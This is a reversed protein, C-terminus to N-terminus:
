VAMANSVNQLNFVIPQVNHACANMAQGNDEEDCGFGADDDAAPPHIAEDNPRRNFTGHSAVTSEDSDDSSNNKLTLM